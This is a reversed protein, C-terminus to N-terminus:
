ADLDQRGRLAPSIFDGWLWAGGAAILIAALMLAKGWIMSSVFIQMLLLYIGGILLACAILFCIVARM